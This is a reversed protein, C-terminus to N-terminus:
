KQGYDPDPLVLKGTQVKFEEPVHKDPDTVGALTYNENPTPDAEIGRYGKEWEEKLAHEAEPASTEPAEPPSKTAKRSEDADSAGESAKTTKSPTTAM